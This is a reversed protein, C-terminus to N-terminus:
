YKMKVEDEEKPFTQRWASKLAAGIGGSKKQESFLVRNNYIRPLTAIRFLRTSIQRM